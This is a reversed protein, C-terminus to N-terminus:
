EGLRSNIAELADEFREQSESVKETHVGAKELEECIMDLEKETLQKM